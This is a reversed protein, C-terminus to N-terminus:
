AAVRAGRRLLALWVMAACALLLGQCTALVGLNKRAQDM